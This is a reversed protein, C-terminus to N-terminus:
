QKAPAPIEFVPRVEIVGTKADPCKAAWEVAAEKTECELVYFGSIQEQSNSYPNPSVVKKEDLRVTVASASPQLAEGGRLIGAAVLEKTYVEYEELKKRDEETMRGNEKEKSYILLLYKM